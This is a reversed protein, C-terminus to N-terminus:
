NLYGLDDQSEEEIIPKKKKEKKKPEEEPLKLENLEIMKSMFKKHYTLLEKIEKLEEHVNDLHRKNEKRFTGIISQIEKSFKEEHSKVIKRVHEDLMVHAVKYGEMLSTFNRGYYAFYDDEM